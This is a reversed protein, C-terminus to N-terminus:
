LQKETEIALISGMSIKTGDGMVVIGEAENLKKIIGTTSIIAGGSKNKDPQFWTIAAEPTEALRERLLQLKADIAALEYEDLEPKEETLRGAEQVTADYGTLAAFPSFQAARASNPMPRHKKSIPRSLNIIDEYGRSM